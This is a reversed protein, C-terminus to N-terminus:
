TKPKKKKQEELYEGMKKYGEDPRGLTIEKVGISWMHMISERMADNLQKKTPRVGPTEKLIMAKVEAVAKKNKYHLGVLEGIFEDEPTTPLPPKDLYRVRFSKYGYKSKIVKIVQALDGGVVVFDDVEIDPNTAKRHMQAPYDNKKVLDACAKLVGKINHIRMLDKVRVVVHLALIAAMTLQSDIDDLKLNRKGAASGPHLSSSQSGFSVQHTRLVARDEVKMSPFVAKFKDEFSRLTNKIQGNKVKAYWCKEPKLKKALEEAQEVLRKEQHAYNENVAGYFEKIDAQTRRLAALDQLVLYHRYYDENNAANFGVLDIMIETMKRQWLVLEDIKAQLINDAIRQGEDDKPDVATDTPRSDVIFESAHMLSMGTKEVENLVGFLYYGKPDAASPAYMMHYASYSWKLRKRLQGAGKIPIDIFSEHRKKEDTKPKEVILPKPKNDGAM